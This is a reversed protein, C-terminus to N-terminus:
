NTHGGKEVRKKRQKSGVPCLSFSLVDIGAAILAMSRILM